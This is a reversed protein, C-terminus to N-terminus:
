PGVTTLHIVLVMYILPQMWNRLWTGATIRGHVVGDRNFGVTAMMRVMGSVAATGLGVLEVGGRDGDGVSGGNGDRSVCCLWPGRTGSVAV